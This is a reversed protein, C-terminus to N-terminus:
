FGNPIILYDRVQIIKVDNSRDEKNVVVEYTKEEDKLYFRIYTGNGEAFVLKANLNM